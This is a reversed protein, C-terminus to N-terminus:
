LSLLSGSTICMKVKRIEDAKIEKAEIKVESSHVFKYDYVGLAIQALMKKEPGLESLQNMFGPLLLSDQDLTLLWEFGESIARDAAMNLATGLGLNGPNKIVEVNAFNQFVTALPTEGKDEDTNDYIYVKAVEQSVGVVEEFLTNPPHFTVIVAASNAVSPAPQFSPDTPM